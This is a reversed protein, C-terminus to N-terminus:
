KDHFTHSGRLYRQTLDILRCERKDSNVDDSYTQYHEKGARGKPQGAGHNM